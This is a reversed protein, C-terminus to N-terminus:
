ALGAPNLEALLAKADKLDATDFGHTFWGYINALMARAADRKGQKAMLLALSTTARLEWSKASMQQALAIAERFDAEALETRGLKVHLEGRWTLINPRFVLEEGLYKAVHGGLRTVAEAATRQYRADIDRWEEPDLRAAIETSNVLDCFMVTLHRREGDAVEGSVLPAPAAGNVSLAAGCDGCFRSEPSNETGCKPCLGPLSSGCQSCFKKGVPNETSCNSCRM